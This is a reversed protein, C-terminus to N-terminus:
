PLVVASMYPKGFVPVGGEGPCIAQSGGSVAFQPDGLDSFSHGFFNTRM